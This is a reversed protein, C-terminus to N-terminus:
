EYRREALRDREWEFDNKEYHIGKMLNELDRSLERTERRTLNHNSLYRREKHNIREFENLLRIAEKSTLTGNAIGDAIRGRADRQMRNLFMAEEHDNASLRDNYSGKPDVNSRQDYKGRNPYQNRDPYSDGGKYQAFASSTILLVLVATILKKM